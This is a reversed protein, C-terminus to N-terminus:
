EETLTPKPFASLSPDVPRYPGGREVKWDPLQKGGSALLGKKDSIEHCLYNDAWSAHTLMKSQNFALMRQLRVAIRAM